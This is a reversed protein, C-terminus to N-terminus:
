ITTAFFFQVDCENPNKKVFFKAWMHKSMWSTRGIQQRLVTSFINAPVLPKIQKRWSNHGHASWTWAVELSLWLCEPDWGLYISGNTGIAHTRSCVTEQSSTRQAPKPKNRWSTWCLGRPKIMNTKNNHTNYTDQKKERSDERKERKERKEENKTRRRRDRSGWAHTRVRLSDLSFRKAALSQVHEGLWKKAM